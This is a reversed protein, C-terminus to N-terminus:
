KVYFEQTGSGFPHFLVLTKWWKSASSGMWSVLLDHWWGVVWYNYKCFLTLPLLLVELIRMSCDGSWFLKYSPAFANEQSYLPRTKFARWGQPQAHERYHEHHHSQQWGARQTIWLGFKYTKRLHPLNIWGGHCKPCYHRTQSNLNPCIKLVM